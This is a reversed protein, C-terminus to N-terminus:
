AEVAPEALRVRNPEGAWQYGAPLRASEAPLPVPAPERVGGRPEWARFSSEMGMGMALVWLRLGRNLLGVKQEGAEVVLCPPCGHRVLRLRSTAEVGASPQGDADRDCVAEVLRAVRALITPDLFGAGAPERDDRAPATCGALTAPPLWKDPAEGVFEVRGCGAPDRHLIVAGPWVRVAKGWAAPDRHRAEAARTLPEPRVGYDFPAAPRPDDDDPRAWRLLAFVKADTAAAWPGEADWGFRVQRTDIKGRSDGCVDALALVEVPAVITPLDM